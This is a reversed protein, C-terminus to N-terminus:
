VKVISQTRSRHATQSPSDSKQEQATTIGRRKLPYRGGVTKAAVWVTRGPVGCPLSSASVLRLWVLRVLGLVQLCNVSYGTVFSAVGPRWRVSSCPDVSAVIGIAHASVVGASSLFCRVAVDMALVLPMPCAIAGEDLLLFTSNSQLVLVWGSFGM